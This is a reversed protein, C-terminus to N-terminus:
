SKKINFVRDCFRKEEVPKLHINKCMYFYIRYLKNNSSSTSEGNHWANSFDDVAEIVNSDKLFVLYIINITRSFEDGMLDYRYEFFDSIVKYKLDYKKYHRQLFYTVLAAVVGSFIIELLLRIYENM